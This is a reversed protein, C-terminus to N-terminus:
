RGSAITMFNVSKAHNDLLENGCACLTAGTTMVDDIVAVNKGKVLESEELAFVGDVNAMRQARSKKTQTETFKTRKLALCIPVDIKQSIGEAFMESQNFGRRIKKSPHLPVPILLDPLPYGSALLENGFLRGLHKALDPRNKYKIEHILRQSQGSKTFRLFSVISKVKTLGEVKQVLDNNEPRLVYNTRPLSEECTLCLHEEFEHLSNKCM